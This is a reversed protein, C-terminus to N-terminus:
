QELQQEYFMVMQTIHQPDGYDLNRESAFNRVDRRHDGFLRLVSRRRTRVNHFDGNEDMFYLQEREVFRNPSRSAGGYGVVQGGEQFEKEVKRYLGTDQEHLVQLYQFNDFEGPLVGVRNQFTANSGDPMRLSFSNVQMENLVFAENEHMIEVTNNFANYNMVLNEFQEGGRTRVNGLTFEELLHPTGEYEANVPPAKTMIGGLRDSVQPNTPDVIGGQAQVAQFGGAICFLLATLFIYTTKLM